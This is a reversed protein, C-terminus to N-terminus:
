IRINTTGDGAKRKREGEPVSIIGGWVIGVLWGALWASPRVSPAFRKGMWRGRLLVRALYFSVSPTDLNPFFGERMTQLLWLQTLNPTWLVSSHEDM